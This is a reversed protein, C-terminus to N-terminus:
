FWELEACSMFKAVCCLVPRQALYIKWLHILSSYNTKILIICWIFKKLIGFLLTGKGWELFHGMRDSSCAYTSSIPSFSAFISKIWLLFTFGTRKPRPRPWSSRKLRVAMRPRRSRLIFNLWRAYSMSVFCL